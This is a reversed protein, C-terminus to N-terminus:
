SGLSPGDDHAQRSRQGFAEFHFRNSPWILLHPFRSFSTSLFLFKGQQSVNRQELLYVDPPQNFRARIRQKVVTKYNADLSCPGFVCIPVYRLLFNAIRM